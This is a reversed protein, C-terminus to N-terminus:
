PAAGVTAAWLNTNGSEFGDAFIDNQPVPGHGLIAIDDVYWGDGTVSPDSSLRFRVQLNAEGTGIPLPLTVQEVTNQVGSYSAVSTWNTGDISVEVHGFDFGSELDYRHWFTLTPSELGTFDVVPSTLSTNVNSGYNGPSDTWSHTPSNSQATTIFWPSQPTWGEAGSEVDHDIQAEFLPLSFNQGVTQNEGAVIDSVSASAYGDASATIDYTGPPIQFSYFGTGDTVASFIGDVLVTAGALGAQTEADRVFGQLTPATLPDIVWFFLASTAGINGAADEGQLFLTHRGSDFDTTDIDVEVAEVTSDFNGDSPIMAYVPQPPLSESVSLFGPNNLYAEAVAINQTPEPPQGPDFYRTDDMTATVTLTDGANVVATSVAPDVVDPGAPTMYPTRAVKAMYILADMNDPIIVNDFYACDQFFSTGLEITYGVVGLEGYTFDKTSGTVSTSTSGLRPDYQSFFGYKRGLRLIQDGNPPAAATFGWATLVIEGFSHIDLFLGTADDPAPTVLDGPRQDPWISIAHNELAVTEPESAPSSGPFTLSCQSASAAWGFSCNRNLDAGRTNTNSCYNNNTNKRWSLGTEAQKRGDPNGQLTIHVEHYDLLWTVDPDTGYNELLLEAFRTALEASAYERAHIGGNIYIVPKDGGTASNTMQLMLIDYGNAPNQVKEWSDGIDVWTALHPYAAALAAGDALTEEVTRYCPFGPIGSAQGELAQPPHHLFGTEREDIWVKFGQSRLDDIQAARGVATVTGAPGKFEWYAWVDFSEVLMELDKRDRLQVLVVSADEAVGSPTPADYLGSPLTSSYGDGASAPAAWLLLAALAVTVLAWPHSHTSPFPAPVAGAPRLGRLILIPAM